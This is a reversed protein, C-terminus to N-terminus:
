NCYSVVAPSAFFYCLVICILCLFFIRPRFSVPQTNQPLYIIERNTNKTIFYHHTSPISYSIRIIRMAWSEHELYMSNKEEIKENISVM